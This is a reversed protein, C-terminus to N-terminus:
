EAVRSHLCEIRSIPIEVHTGDAVIIHAHNEHDRLRLQGLAMSGSVSTIKGVPKDRSDVRFVFGKQAPAECHFRAFAKAVQGRYTARAVVEQGIYCGKHFSIHSAFPFELILSEENFDVGWRPRGAKVYLDTIEDESLARYKPLEAEPAVWIQFHQPSLEGVPIVYAEPFVQAKFVRSQDQGVVPAVRSDEAKSLESTPAEFVELVRWPISLLEMSVDDAVLYRDLAEYVAQGRGRPLMLFYEGDSLCLIQAPSVPKAKLNLLYAGLVAPAAKSALKLDGTWMGQLFRLADKGTIKLFDAELLQAASYSNKLTM